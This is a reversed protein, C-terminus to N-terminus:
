IFHLSLEPHRLRGLLEKYGAYKIESCEELWVITIGNISKLKAPKDMGKFIIKSGNPFKVQMPSSKFIIKDDLEMETVIEEFLSYCSDRMTDYVERVVLATRKEEMLKLIIKLAVHYSKSSGYGGVLFYTKYSWDFIFDEFHPNVEKVIPM